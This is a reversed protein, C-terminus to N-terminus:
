LGPRWVGGFRCPRGIAAAISPLPDMMHELVTLLHGDDRDPNSPEAHERSKKRNIEKVKERRAKRVAEVEAASCGLREAVSANTATSGAMAQIRDRLSQSMVQAGGFKHTIPLGCRQAIKAVTKTDCRVVKAVATFSYGQQVLRRAQERREESLPARAAKVPAHLGIRVALRRIVSKCRGLDAAIAAYSKGAQRGALVAEIEDQSVPSM